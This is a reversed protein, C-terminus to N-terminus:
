RLVRGGESLSYVRGLPTRIARLRGLNILERVWQSSYGLRHAVAGTSLLRVKGSRDTILANSGEIEEMAM